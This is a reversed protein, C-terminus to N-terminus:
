GRCLTLLCVKKEFLACDQAKTEGIYHLVASKYSGAISHLYDQFQDGAQESTKQDEVSM